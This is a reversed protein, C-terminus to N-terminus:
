RDYRNRDDKDIIRPFKREKESSTTHVRLKMAIGGGYNEITSPAESM